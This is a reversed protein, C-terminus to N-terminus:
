FGGHSRWRRGMGFCGLRGWFFCGVQMGTISSLREEADALWCLEGGHFADVLLGPAGSDGDEGGEGGEKDEEQVNGQPGQGEEPGRQGSSSGSGGGDQPSAGGRRGVVPRLMLHAPLNVPEMRLGVRAAVAM